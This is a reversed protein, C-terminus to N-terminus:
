PRPGEIRPHCYPRPRDSISDQCLVDLRYGGIAHRLRQGAIWIRAARDLDITQSHLHQFGPNRRTEAVATADINSLFDHIESFVLSDPNAAEEELTYMPGLPDAAFHRLIAPPFSVSRAGPAPRTTSDGSGLPTIASIMRLAEQGLIGSRLLDADRTGRFTEGRWVVFLPVGKLTFRSLVPSRGLRYLFQEAAYSLFLFNLQTDRALELTLLRAHISAPVNSVPKTIM